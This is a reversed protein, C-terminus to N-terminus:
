MVATRGWALPPATPLRQRDHVCTRGKARRHSHRATGAPQPRGHDKSTRDQVWAAQACAGGYCTCHVCVCPTLSTACRRAAVRRCLPATCQIRIRDYRRCEAVLGPGAARHIAGDVGGGGQCRQNTANVIAGVRLGTIDGKWVCVRANVAANPSFKARGISRAKDRTRAWTCVDGVSVPKRRRRSAHRPAKKTASQAKASRRPRAEAM